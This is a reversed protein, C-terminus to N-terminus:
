ILTKREMRPCKQLLTCRLLKSDSNKLLRRYIKMLIWNEKANCGLEKNIGNLVFGVKTKHVTTNQTWM